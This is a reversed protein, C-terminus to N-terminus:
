GIPKTTRKTSNTLHLLLFQGLWFGLKPRHLFISTSAFPTHTNLLFLLPIPRSLSLSVALCDLTATTAASHTYKRHAFIERSQALTFGSIPLRSASERKSIPMLRCLAFFHITNTHWRASLFDFARQFRHALQSHIGNFAAPPVCKKGYVRRVYVRGLWLSGWGSYMQADSLAIASQMTSRPSSCSESIGSRMQRVRFRRVQQLRCGCKDAM